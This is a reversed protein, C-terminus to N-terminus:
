AVQGVAPQSDNESQLEGIQEIEAAIEPLWKTAREDAALAALAQKAENFRRTRREISALLLRAEVDTPHKALMRSITLEAELWHGKLYEHQAEVLAAEMEAAQQAEGSDV